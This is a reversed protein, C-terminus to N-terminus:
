IHTLESFRVSTNKGRVTKAEYMAKDAAAILEDLTKAHSHRLSAVGISTTIPADGVSVHEVLMKRIKEAKEYAEDESAGLLGMVFEEGGLRGVIDIDRASKKLSQAVHKLVRDGEDHGYTDNVQKFNDLDFFLVSFDNIVVGRRLEKHEKSFLAERFFGELEEYTGRRNLVGTLEDKYVLKKLIQIERRLSEVVEHDDEGDLVIEFTRLLETLKGRDDFMHEEALILAHIHELAHVLVQPSMPVKQAPM